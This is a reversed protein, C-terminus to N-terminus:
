AHLEISRILDEMESAFVKDAGIRDEVTKVAHIVTSHDRRGFHIAIGRLSHRTLKNCIYMAVQRTHAVEKKRGRDKLDVLPINNYRACAEAITEM